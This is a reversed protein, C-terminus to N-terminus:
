MGKSTRAPQAAPRDYQAAPLAATTAASAEPVGGFFIDAINAMTAQTVKASSATKAMRRPGSAHLTMLPRPLAGDRGVLPPDISRLSPARAMTDPLAPSTGPEDGLPLAPGSLEVCSRATRRKIAAPLSRRLAAHDPEPPPTRRPVLPRALGRRREASVPRDPLHPDLAPLALGTGMTAEPHNPWCPKIQNALYDPYQTRLVTEVWDSLESLREDRKQDTMTLWFWEAPSPEDDKDLIALIQEVRDRLEAIGDLM